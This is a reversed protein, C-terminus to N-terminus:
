LSSNDLTLPATTNFLNLAVKTKDCQAITENRDDPKFIIAVRGELARHEKVFIGRSVSVRVM